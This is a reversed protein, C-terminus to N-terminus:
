PIILQQGIQISNPDSLRNAAELAAVTTGFRDAIQSLTEGAKVVYTRAAVTPVTSPTVSPSANPTSGPTPSPSVGYSPIPTPLPTAPVSGAPRQSGGTGVIGPASSPAATLQGLLAAVAPLGGAYVTAAALLLIVLAAM